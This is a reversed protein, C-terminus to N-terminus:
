KKGWPNVQSDLPLLQLDLPIQVTGRLCFASTLLSPAAFSCLPSHILALGLASDTHQLGSGVAFRRCGKWAGAGFGLSM